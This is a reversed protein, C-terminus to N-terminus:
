TRMSCLSPPYLIMLSSSGRQRHCTKPVHLSKRALMDRRLTGNIAADQLTISPGVINMSQTNIMTSGIYDVKYEQWHNRCLLILSVLIILM